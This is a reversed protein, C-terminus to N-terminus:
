SANTEHESRLISMLVVDLFQGDKYQAQRQVGEHQFGLSGYLALAPENGALVSLHVRNLNLMEFGYRVAFDTVQRGVGRRWYSKDGIMVAFEASRIRHDIEYLGVHGICPGDVDEAIIAWLAESEHNRHHEIWAEIDRHSYGRSFGGLARAVEPDNKQAYLAELDKPEPKRLVVAVQGTSAHEWNLKHIM